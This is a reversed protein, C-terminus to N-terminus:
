YGLEKLLQEIKPSFEPRIKLLNEAATKAKERQGTNIYANILGEWFYFEQPNLKIGKEYLPILIEFSEGTKKLIEIGEKLTEPNQQWDFNLNELEKLESLALDYKAMLRYARILYLRSGLFGPELDKAKKLFELAEENKRQLFRTQAFIYYVQQNNPSIERAKELVREAQSVKKQDFLTAYINYLQGLKLYSRLDLPSEKTSKELEEIVFDIEKKFNEPLVEKIKESQAFELINQGFFDRIQYKGLPSTELTKKYFFLRQASDQSRIAKIVYADTRLPQIIFKSFSFIFLILVIIPLFSNLIDIKIKKQSIVEEKFSGINGIFGLVLFFMLYSNVMDFVTLNQVSYSILIVSFISNLWFDIKEKFYKKWLIYFSALFIGLYSLFGIIGSTVLTDFIINHARDFWVEGGYESLALRPDYYKTFVLEFNEPGWGLWPRELFGQWAAQWIVIRSKSAMQVMKQYVLSEPELSLYMLGLVSITFIILLFIGALKLKGKQCFILWLFFLLIAGGLVSLIAARADSSFLALSIIALSIGSYIKLGGASKLFLYLALFINFLLYTGLFSSNGITAGGRASFLLGEIKPNAKVWLSILSILVAVFISVTFIKLWDTKEFVSFIVLFFAILHFWMLLGTMREYKSWFSRSIDVGFISSLTLIAVFLILAILLFNFKPRYSKSFIILILWATFIIEALGMFFLSKPGVFPFFFKGSVILPTFLLLGTGILIIGRCIAVLGIESKEKQFNIKEKKRERKERSRKGM